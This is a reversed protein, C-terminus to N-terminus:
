GREPLAPQYGKGTMVPCLPEGDKHAWQLRKPEVELAWGRRPLNARKAPEHCEPCRMTAM